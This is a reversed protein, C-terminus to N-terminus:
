ILWRYIFQYGMLQKNHENLMHTSYRANADQQYM